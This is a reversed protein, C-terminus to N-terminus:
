LQWPKGRRNFQEEDGPPSSPAGEAPPSAPSKAPAGVTRPRNPAKMPLPPINAAESDAIVPPQAGAGPSLTAVTPTTPPIPTTTQKPAQAVNPSRLADEAWGKCLGEPTTSFITAVTAVDRKGGAEWFGAEGAKEARAGQERDRDEISDLGQLGNEIAEAANEATIAGLLGKDRCYHLLGIKNRAAAYRVDRRDNQQAGASDIYSGYLSVGLMAALCSRRLM